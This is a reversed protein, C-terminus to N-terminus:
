HSGDELALIANLGRYRPGRRYSCNYIYYRATKQELNKGGVIRTMSSNYAQSYILM